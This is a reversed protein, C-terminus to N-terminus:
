LSTAFFGIRFFYSMFAGGNGELIDALRLLARDGTSLAINASYLLEAGVVLMAVVVIGSVVTPSRIISACSM